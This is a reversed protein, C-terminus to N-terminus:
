RDDSYLSVANVLNEVDKLNYYPSLDNFVYPHYDRRKPFRIRHSEETLQDKLRRLEVHHYDEHAKDSKDTKATSRSTDVNRREMVAFM